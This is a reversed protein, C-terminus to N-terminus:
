QQLTAHLLRKEFSTAFLVFNLFDFTMITSGKTAM